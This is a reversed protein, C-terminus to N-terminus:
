CTRFRLLGLSNLSFIFGFSHSLGRKAVHCLQIQCNKHPRQIPVASKTGPMEPPVTANRKVLASPEVDIDTSESMCTSSPCMNLGQIMAQPAIAIQAM